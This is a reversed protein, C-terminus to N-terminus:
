RCTQNGTGWREKWPYGSLGEGGPLASSHEQPSPCPPFPSDVSGSGQSWRQFGPRTSGPEDQLIHLQMDCCKQIDQEVKGWMQVVQTSFLRRKSRSCMKFEHTATVTVALAGHSVHQSRLFWLLTKWLSPINALYIGSNKHLTTVAEAYLLSCYVLEGRQWTLVHKHQTLYELCSAKSTLWKM